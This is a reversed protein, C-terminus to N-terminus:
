DGKVLHGGRVLFGLAELRRRCDAEALEAEPVSVYEEVPTLDPRLRVGCDAPLQSWLKRGQADTARTRHQLFREERTLATEGVYFEIRKKNKPHTVDLEIVYVRRLPGPRNVRHGLYRLARIRAKAANQAKKLKDYDKAYMLDRRLRVVRGKAWSHRGKGAQVHTVFAEPELLTLAVLLNCRNARFRPTADDLELVVLHYREPAQDQTKEAKPM